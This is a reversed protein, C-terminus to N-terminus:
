GGSVECAQPWRTTDRVNMSRAPSGIPFLASGTIARDGAAPPGKLIACVMVM